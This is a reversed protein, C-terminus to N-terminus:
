SGGARSTTSYKLLIRLASDPKSPIGQQNQAPHLTFTKWLYLICHFLFHFLKYMANQMFGGIEYM